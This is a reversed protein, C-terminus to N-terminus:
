LAGANQPARILQFINATDIMKSQFNKNQLVGSYFYETHINLLIVKGHKGLSWDNLTFWRFLYM